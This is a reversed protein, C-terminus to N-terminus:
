CTPIIRRSIQCQAKALRCTECKASVQTHCCLPLSVGEASVMLHDIAATSAHALRAHWLEADATSHPPLESKAAAFTTAVQVDSPHPSPVSDNSSSYPSVDNDNPNNYEVVYQNHMARLQCIPQGDLTELCKHRINMLYGAMEARRVSLLNTHMGPIFAVNHLRMVVQKDKPLSGYVQVTGFGVIGTESNGHRVTDEEGAPIFSEFRRLDNCVHTDSGSGAIWSARLLYDNTSTSSAFANSGSAVANSLKPKIYTSMNIGTEPEPASSRPFPKGIDAKAKNLARQISPCQPDDFKAQITHDPEWGNPCKAPNVYPCSAFFHTAGCLCRVKKKEGSTSPGSSHSSPPGSDKSKSSDSYGQFTGFVNGKATPMKHFEYQCEFWRIEARVDIDDEDWEMAMMYRTSAATPM